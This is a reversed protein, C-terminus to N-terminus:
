KLLDLGNLTLPVSQLSSVWLVCILSKIDEVKRSDSRSPEIKFYQLTLACTLTTKWSGPGEDSVRTESM